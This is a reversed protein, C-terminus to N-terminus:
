AVPWILLEFDRGSYTQLSSLCQVCITQPKAALTNLLSLWNTHPCQGKLEIRQVQGSVDYIMGDLQWRRNRGDGEWGVWVFSGDPELFLRDFQELLASMRELSCAFLPCDESGLSSSRAPFVHISFSKGLM